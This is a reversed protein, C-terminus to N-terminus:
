RRPRAARGIMGSAGTVLVKVPRAPGDGPCRREAWRAVAVRDIKSNHRIDVPLSDTVLVAAM